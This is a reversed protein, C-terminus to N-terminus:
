SIRNNRDRYASSTSQDFIRTPSSKKRKALREAATAAARRNAASEQAPTQSNDFQPNEIQKIETASQPTGPQAVEVIVRRYQRMPAPSRCIASWARFFFFVLLNLGIL